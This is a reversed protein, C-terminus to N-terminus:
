IPGVHKYFSEKRELTSKQTHLPYSDKHEYALMPPLIIEWMTQLSWKQAYNTLIKTIGLGVSQM